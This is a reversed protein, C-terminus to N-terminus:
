NLLEVSVDGGAAKVGGSGITATTVGDVPAPAAPAVPAAAGDGTVLALLRPDTHVPALLPEAMLDVAALAHARVALTAFRIADDALGAQASARATQWAVIGASDAKAALFASGEEHAEKFKGEEVKRHVSAAVDQASAPRVAAAISERTGDCGAM